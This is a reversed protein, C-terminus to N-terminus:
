SISVAPERLSDLKTSVVDGMGWFALRLNAFLISFTAYRVARQRLPPINNEVSSLHRVAYYIDLEQYM